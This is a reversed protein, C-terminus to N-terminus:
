YSEMLSTAGRNGTFVIFLGCNSLKGQRLALQVGTNRSSIEYMDSAASCNSELRKTNTDCHTM